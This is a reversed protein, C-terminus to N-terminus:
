SGRVHRLVLAVLTIVLMLGAPMFKKTKTLRFAFVVLLAALLIDAVYAKFIIDAACLSLAAAFCVSMILSVKSKGKFFGIMGGIVLLIIYIWLMQTRYQSM